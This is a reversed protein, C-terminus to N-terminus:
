GSPQRERLRLTGLVLGARLFGWIGAFCGSIRAIWSFDPAFLKLFGGLKGLAPILTLVVLLNLISPLIIHMGWKRSVKPQSGPNKRWKRLLRLTFAVDIIQFVPILLLGRQIWPIAALRIPVTSNGGLLRVLGAGVESMSIQMTFHDLNVLLIVGKNQEPLLAMYAYFDPVLGSHSIIKEQEQQEIYWGMGYWGISNDMMKTEVAPSQLADIGQPSLILDTGSKGKNLFMQLYRAMDEASSILQGSPLSSEAIPLDPVPIPFGFWSQHGVALGDRKADTKSTHSHNMELPKFIHNHIYNSYSEGSTTEIILGLLNYNVNSYEFATGVPRKLKLGSLARAQHEGADSRQDFNSMIQWGAVLPISSTQNLLHRVTIQASVKTDSIRFWPLYCQIPSDLAIKGSEVLQMVALATFSKTLSGIFFPTQPSPSEGGPRALGFGRMHTIQDGEVIALTAGPINLRKMQKELFSDMETFTTKSTEAKSSSKEQKHRSSVVKFTLTLAACGVLSRILIKKKHM